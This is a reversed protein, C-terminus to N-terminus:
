TRTDTALDALRLWTPRDFVTGYLPGPPPAPLTQYAVVESLYSQYASEKDGILAFQGALYYAAQSPPSGKLTAFAAKYDGSLGLDLGKRIASEAGNESEGVTIRSWGQPSFIYNQYAQIAARYQHHRFLDDAAQTTEPREFLPPSSIQAAERWSAAARTRQGLQSLVYGEQALSFALNVQVYAIPVSPAHGSRQGRVESRFSAIARSFDELACKYNQTQLDRMGAGSWYDGMSVGATDASVPITSTCSFAQGSAALLFVPLFAWFRISM